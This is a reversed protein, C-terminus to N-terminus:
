DEEKEAENLDNENLERFEGYGKGDAGSPIYLQGAEIIEKPIKYESIHDVRIVRDAVTIGNLNDVALM